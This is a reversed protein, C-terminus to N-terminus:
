FFIRMTKMLRVNNGDIKNNSMDKCIILNVMLAMNRSKVKSNLNCNILNCYFFKMLDFIIIRDGGNGM